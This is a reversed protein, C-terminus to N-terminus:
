RQHKVEKRSYIYGTLGVIAENRESMFGHLNDSGLQISKYGNCFSVIIKKQNKHSLSYNQM